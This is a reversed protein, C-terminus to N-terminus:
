STFVAFESKPSLLVVLLLMTHRMIYVSTVASCYYVLTAAYIDLLLLDFRNGLKFYILLTLLRWLWQLGPFAYKM